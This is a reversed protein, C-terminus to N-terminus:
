ELFRVEKFAYSRTTGAEDRLLLIGNPQVDVITALFDGAADRFPHLSGDRRYLSQLYARHIKDYDGAKLLAYLETFYKLFNRLVAARDPNGKTIQKVSVPNPADGLFQSQCVNIGIGIVTTAIDAGRLNHEILMGCIKRDDFYIDNPWKVTLGGGKMMKSLAKMVALSVVESILFQHSAKVGEPRFRFAFLLNEGRASEWTTGKQGHGRTQYDTTVLAFEAPRSFVEEERIYNMATDLEPLHEHHWGPPLDPFNYLTKKPLKKVVEAYSHDVMALIDADDIDADFRVDNWHTKNWHWAPTVGNYKDRLEVAYDPEAKLVVLWPRELDICAFIKDCIRFLVNEPGFACDETVGPKSICYDRLTEINM